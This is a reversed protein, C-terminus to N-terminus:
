EGDPVDADEDDLADYGDNEDGSEADSTYDDITSFGGGSEIGLPTSLIASNEMIRNVIEQVFLPANLKRLESYLRSLIAKTTLHFREINPDESAESGALHYESNPILILQTDLPPFNGSIKTVKKSASNLWEPVETTFPSRIFERMLNWYTATMSYCDKAFSVRSASDTFKHLYSYGVNMLTDVDMKLSSALARVQPTATDIVKRLNTLSPMSKESYLTALPSFDPERTTKTSKVSKFPIVTIKNERIKEYERKHKIYFETDNLNNFGCRCPNGSHIGGLPCAVKFAAKIGQINSRLDLDKETVPSGKLTFDKTTGLALRGVPTADYRKRDDWKLTAGCRCAFVTVMGNFQDKKFEFVPNWRHQEGNKCFLFELPLNLEQEPKILHKCIRRYQGRANYDLVSIKLDRDVRKHRQLWDQVNGSKTLFDYMAQLFPDAKKLVVMQEVPVDLLLQQLLAEVSKGTVSKIARTYNTQDSIHGNQLAVENFLWSHSLVLNVPIPTNIIRQSLRMRVEKYARGFLEKIIPKSLPVARLKPALLQQLIEFGRNLVPLEPQSVKNAKRQEMSLVIRSAEKAATKKRKEEARAQQEATKVKGGCHVNANKNRGFGTAKVKRGFGSSQMTNNKSIGAGRAVKSTRHGVAGDELWRMASNASIISCMAAFAYIKSYIIRFVAVDEEANSKDRKATNVLSEIGDAIVNIISYLVNKQARENLGTFTHRLAEMASSSTVRNTREMSTGFRDTIGFMDRTDEEALVAGCGRCRIVHKDVPLAWADIYTRTITRGEQTRVIDEAMDLWHPCAGFKEVRADKVDGRQVANIHVKVPRRMQSRVRKLPGTIDEHRQLAAILEQTAKPQPVPTMLSKITMQQIRELSDWSQDYLRKALLSQISATSRARDQEAMQVRVARNNDIQKMMSAWRTNKVTMPVFNYDRFVSGTFYTGELKDPAPIPSGKYVRDITPYVRHILSQKHFENNSSNSSYELNDPFLHTFTIKKALVPKPAAISHKPQNHKFEIAHQITKLQEASDGKLSWRQKTGLTFSEVYVPQRRITGDEVKVYGRQNIFLGQSDSIQCLAVDLLQNILVEPVNAM